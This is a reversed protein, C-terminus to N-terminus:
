PNMMIEDYLKIKRSTVDDDSNYEIKELEQSTYNTVISYKGNDRLVKVLVKDQYGVRVRIVYPVQIDGKQEYAIASNPVKMGKDSWWIIQFSAKRYSILEEVGREIKLIIVNKNDQENIHTIKAPIEKGSPLRLEVNDGVIAKKANESDLITAIYCNYNNIIKGSEDNAAIIQGTKINLSELFEKTIKEFNNTQLLEELGDVRYSVVGSNPSTLYEAGLNLKNEYSSRENILKKLYSGSPSLDGAIKAKKTIYTNIERKYEKIKTLDSENYVYNLKETIQNELVKTDSSFLNKEKAMAEDIKTDLEQIKKILSEEGNSYYRFIAEGKAVREGETKIQSMGNKYNKGKLVTEERLIYGIASEEQYIQGQEVLFTDTPNKFLSIVVYCVYIIVILIIIFFIKKKYRLLIDLIPNQKKRKNKEKKNSMEVKQSKIENYHEYIINNKKVKTNKAETKKKM